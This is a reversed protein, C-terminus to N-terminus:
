GADKRRADLDVVTGATSYAAAVRDLAAERDLHGYLKRVLLGGDEHGLAVACDEPTMRLVNVMHFGAFHRTALYLTHEWGVAAKVAKWHYARASATMPTDRLTLFCHTSVRPLGALAARAQPTLLADRARGNKPTTVLGSVASLQREVRIRGRDFDVCDWTLADLEGPRMGTFAAVQLWAAFSPSCLRSAADILAWVTTEAPPQKVANGKSQAIKLGAWPNRTIIRGADASAADNFMARLKSVQGNRKGGALWTRIHLDGVDALPLDAHARAFHRTREANLINTSAKPRRWLPDTTWTEWWSGVTVTAGPKLLLAAERARAEVAKAERLTRYSTPPQGLLSAASVNGRGPAHVQVRYRGNRLTSITM